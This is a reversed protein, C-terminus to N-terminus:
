VLSITITDTIHSTNGNNTIGNYSVTVTVVQHNKSYYVTNSSIQLGTVNQWGKYSGIKGSKIGTIYKKSSNSAEYRYTYYITINVWKKGTDLKCQKTYTGTLIEKSVLSQKKTSSSEEAYIHNSTPMCVMMLIMLLIKLLIQVNEKKM